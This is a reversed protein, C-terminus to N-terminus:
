STQEHGPDTNAAQPGLFALDYPPKQGAQGALDNVQKKLEIMQLERGVSLRHFRELEAARKKLVEDAQKRETIDAAIGATRYPKGFEDLIPFGRVRIWREGGDPRIIRFEYDFGTNRGESFKTFAHSLDDPHISDAWSAPNTYLSECTRGWIQEYAPSVYYMQTSDINQLFFVDRINEALQRFRLESDRLSEETHRQVTIDQLTNFWRLGSAAEGVAKLPEMTQRVYILEGDARRLRYELEMLRKNISADIAKERFLSQDDRHVIDLWARTTRPVQAPEVGLLRPLTESWREFSGDPGTIIHALKAMVEARHLGDESQAFAAQTRRRETTNLHMVIAGNSREHALPTVILLFWHQETPSHCPYEISFTKLGGSLVSRIGEAAQRAESAGEGRASDCVELYNIGIEHGAGLANAGVFHRWAENVSIIRGETDLLAIHAPLANLIAAQKAAEIHRLREQAHRLLFTRGDRDAVTDVEGATLEELRQGTEHLTAILASIEENADGAFLSKEPNM